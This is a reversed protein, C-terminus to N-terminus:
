LGGYRLVAGEFPADLVAQELFRIAALSATQAAPPSPDLPDDESKVPGGERANPWGTFSM